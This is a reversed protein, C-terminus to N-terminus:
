VSKCVTTFLSTLQLCQGELLRLVERECEYQVHATSISWTGVLEQHEAVGSGSSSDGYTNPRKEGDVTRAVERADVLNQDPCKATPRWVDRRRNPDALATRLSLTERQSNAPSWSCHEATAKLQGLRSTLGLVPGRVRV